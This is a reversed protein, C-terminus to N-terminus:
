CVISMNRRTGVNHTANGINSVLVKIKKGSQMLSIILADVIRCGIKNTSSVFTKRNLLSLSQKDLM